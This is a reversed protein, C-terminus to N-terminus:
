NESNDISKTENRIEELRKEDEDEKKDSEWMDGFCCWRCGKGNCGKCRYTYTGLEAQEPDKFVIAM